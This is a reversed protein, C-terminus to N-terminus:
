RATRNQLRNAIFTITGILAIYLAACVVLAPLYIDFEKGLNKSRQLLDQFTVIFGLSTDKLLSASQAVLNPLARRLAQPLLVSRMTQSPTLGIALGAETQGKSLSRLSSRTVEAITTSYYLTLGTVVAWWPKMNVFRFPASILLILACARFFEVYTTATIKPIFILGLVLLGVVASFWASREPNNTISRLVGVPTVGDKVWITTLLVTAMALLVSGVAVIPFPGTGHRLGAMLTGILLALIIGVVASTLTQHIGGGLFTWTTKTTFPEWLSRQLQGGPYFRTPATLKGYMWWIAVAILAISLTSGVAVARRGKPGLEENLSLEGARGQPVTLLRDAFRKSPNQNQSTSM